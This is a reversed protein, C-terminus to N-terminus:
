RQYVMKSLNQCLKKKICEWDVRGIYQKLINNKVKADENIKMVCYTNLSKITM